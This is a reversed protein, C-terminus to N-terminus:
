QCAAELSPPRVKLLGTERAWKAWCVKVKEVGSKDDADSERKAWSRVVGIGRRPPVAAVKESLM